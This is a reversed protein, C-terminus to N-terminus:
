WILQGQRAVVRGEKVVLLPRTVSSMNALPDEALFVMDALKGKALSGLRDELGLAQAPVLTSLQLTEMASAKGEDVMRQMLAPLGNLGQGIADTNIYVRMGADQMRRFLDWRTM